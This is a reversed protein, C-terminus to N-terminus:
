ANPFVPPPATAEQDLTIIAAELIFPYAFLSRWARALTPIANLGRM